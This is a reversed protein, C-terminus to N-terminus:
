LIKRQRALAGVHPFFCGPRSKPTVRTEGRPSCERDEGMTWSSAVGEQRRVGGNAPGAEASTLTAALATATAEGQQGGRCGVNWVRVGHLCLSGARETSVTTYSGALLVQAPRDTVRSGAGMPGRGWRAKLRRGTGRWGGQARMGRLTCSANVAAPATEEM